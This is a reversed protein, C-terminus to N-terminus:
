DDASVRQYATKAAFILVDILYVLLVASAVFVVFGPITDLPVLDVAILSLTVVSAAIITGGLNKM